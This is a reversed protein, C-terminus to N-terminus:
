EFNQFKQPKFLALVMGNTLMFHVQTCEVTLGPYFEMAMNKKRMSIVSMNRCRTFDFKIRVKLHSVFEDGAITSTPQRRPSGTSTTDRGVGVSITEAAKKDEKEAEVPFTWRRRCEERM